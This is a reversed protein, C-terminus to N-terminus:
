VRAANGSAPAAARRASDHAAAWEDRLRPDGAAPQHPRPRARRLLLGSGRAATRFAGQRRLRPVGRLAGRAAPPLARARRGAARRDVGRRLVLGSHLRADDGADRTADRLDALSLRLPADVLGYVELAWGAFGGRALREYAADQPPRGNIRAFASAAAAPYHQRSTLGHALGWELPHVVTALAHKTTSPRRLTVVTALVHIAVIGALAAAGIALAATRDGRPTGMVILGWERPLGHIAVMVTHVVTFAGFAALSLFHLSRAGQRGGFPRLFWRFQAAIAPSMAAGTLLMFPALLFVVAFYTLQQLADYGGHSPPLEFSLYTVFVHWARPFVAWTTPVLRRWEDTAFLLVVYIVGVLLWWAVTFLHWHRGLGLNKHGPLALLSPYATEEEKSTWQGHDPIVKRTLKLWESGPLCADNWYLKPHASLIEIGSRALLSLFLINLVHAGRLWLPFALPM